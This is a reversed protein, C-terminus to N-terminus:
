RIDVHPQQGEGRPIKLGLSEAMADIHEIKRQLASVRLGSAVIAPDHVPVTPHEDIRDVVDYGRRHASWFIFRDLLTM